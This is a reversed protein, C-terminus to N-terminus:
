SDDSRATEVAAQARLHVPWASVFPDM